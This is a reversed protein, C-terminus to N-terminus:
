MFFVMGLSLISTMIWLALGFILPKTGIQRIVDPTLTMGVLFLMITFGKKAVYVLEGSYAAIAPFATSLASAVIFLIICWPVSIRASGKAFVMAYVLAVPVVWLARVLKVSVAVEMAEQGYAAGAGVVSSTDHIAMAAWFGFQEQTLSLWEGILPFLILALSNLAFVVGLAVSINQQRAGMSSSITAIASGGCIATGCSILHMQERELKLARGLWIGLLLTMAISIVSFALGQSSTVLVQEFNLQFGLLAICCQLLLKGGRDTSAQWPNGTLAAMIVGTILAMAASVEFTILGASIVALLPIAAKNNLRASVPTTFSM